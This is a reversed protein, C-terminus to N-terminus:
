TGRALSGALSPNRALFEDAWRYTSRLDFAEGGMYVLAAYL